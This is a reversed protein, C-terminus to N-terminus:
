LTILLNSSSLPLPQTITLSCPLSGMRAPPVSRRAGRRYRQKVIRVDLLSHRKRRFARFRGIASFFAEIGATKTYGAASEPKSHRFYPASATQRPHSM